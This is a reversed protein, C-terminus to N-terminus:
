LKIKKIHNVNLLICSLLRNGHDKIIQLTGMQLILKTDTSFLLLVHLM